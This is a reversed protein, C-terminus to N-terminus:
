ASGGAAMRRLFALGERALVDGSPAIDRWIAAAKAIAKNGLVFSEIVLWRDYQVDRLAQFVGDWDTHGTGPTGRDNESCHMHHLLPGATRIAAPLDKEEIGMHFTDLHVKVNPHGIAQVLKVCDAATNIFYTEFRNLPEIALTVGNDAAIPAVESLGDVALDWEEQTRPRGVLKGVASYLPGCFTDSGVARSLECSRKIYDKAQRRVQPDESILDRDPGVISCATVELGQDDLAAKIEAAPVTEPDDLFVEVGDFGLEASKEILGVAEPGMHASWLLLNVGVKM